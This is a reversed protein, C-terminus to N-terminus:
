ELPLTVKGAAGNYILEISRLSEIKGNFSFFVLGAEPLPREGEALSAMKVKREMALQMGIPMKAPAAPPDNQGGGGVSTKSKSAAPEPPIWEPDKLSHFASEYPQAPLLAKKGNVRLSFDKYSLNVRADSPGFIGIEVLIYDETSYVADATPIGHGAFDAAITVKGAQASARYDGATARPPLPKAPNVVQAAAVGFLVVILVAPLLAGVRLEHHFQRKFM